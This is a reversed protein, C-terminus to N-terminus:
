MKSVSRNITFIISLHISPSFLNTAARIQSHAGSWTRSHPPQDKQVEQARQHDEEDDHQEHGVAEIPGVPGDLGREEGGALQRWVQLLYSSM